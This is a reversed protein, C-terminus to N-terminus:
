DVLNSSDNTFITYVPIWSEAAAQRRWERLTVFISFDEPSLVEKHDIRTKGSGGSSQSNNKAAGKLHEVASSWFSTAKDPVFEHHVTLVRHGRLFSNLANEEKDQNCRPYSFIQISHVSGNVFFDLVSRTLVPRVLRFV